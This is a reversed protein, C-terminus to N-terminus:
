LARLMLWDDMPEGGVHFVLTGAIRFGEKEYFRIAQPQRQWVSLWLSAAGAAAAMGLVEAMMSQAVGRGHQEVDVYFRAIELTPLPSVGAPTGGGTRLQAHGVLRGGIEALLHSRAADGLQREQAGIGYHEAVTAAVNDPTSSDGYAALFNRSMFEALSAADGAGAIRFRLANV